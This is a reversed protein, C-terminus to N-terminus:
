RLFGGEALPAPRPIAIVSALGAQSERSTKRESLVLLILAGAALAVVILVVGARHRRRAGFVPVRM